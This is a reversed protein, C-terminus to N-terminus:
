QRIDTIRILGIDCFRYDIIFRRMLLLTLRRLRLDIGTREKVLAEGDGEKNLLGEVILLVLAERRM